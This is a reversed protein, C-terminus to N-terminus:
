RRTTGTRGNLRKVPLSTVSEDAVLLVNEFHEVVLSHDHLVCIVARRESAWEHMLGVLDKQTSSDVGNFPEDLLVLDADQVIARAFLVRQLQGGSLVGLSLPESGSMGVRALAEARQSKHQRTTRGFLGRRQFHGLDVLDKVRAPFSQDVNQRQCLYARRQHAAILSGQLPPLLGAAAKLLTSKGSGNSGVVATLAGRMFSASVERLIAEGGYGLSVRDFRLSIGDDRESVNNNQFYM